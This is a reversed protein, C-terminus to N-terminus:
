QARLGHMAIALLRESLVAGEPSMEGTHAIAGALRLM